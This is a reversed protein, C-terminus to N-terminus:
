KKFQLQLDQLDKQKNPQGQFIEEHISLIQKLIAIKEQKEKLATHYAEYRANSSQELQVLRSEYTKLDEELVFTRAQIIKNSQLFNINSFQANIQNLLSNLEDHNKDPFVTITTNKEQTKEMETKEVKEQLLKDLNACLDYKKVLENILLQGYKKVKANISQFYTDPIFFNGRLIHRRIHSLKEALIKTNLAQPRVYDFTITSYDLRSLFYKLNLYDPILVAREPLINEKIIELSRLIELIEKKIINLIIVKITTEKDVLKYVVCENLNRNEVIKPMLVYLDESPINDIFAFDKEDMAYSKIPNTISRVAQRIVEPTIQITSVPAYFGFTQTYNNNIESKETLETEVKSQIKELLLQDLDACLDYNKVLQQVLGVCLNVLKMVNRNPNISNLSEIVKEKTTAKTKVQSEIYGLITNYYNRIHQIKEALKKSNLAESKVHDLSISSTNCIDLAINALDYNPILALRAPLINAKIIELSKIIELMEMTIIKDVMYIKMQEESIIESKESPNKSFREMEQSASQTMAQNRNAIISPMLALLEQSSILKELEFEKGFMEQNKYNSIIYEIIKAQTAADLASHRQDTGFIFKDISITSKETKSPNETLTEVIQSSSTTANKGLLQDLNACLDFNEVLDKELQLIYDIYNMIRRGNYMTDLQSIVQDKTTKGDTKSSIYSLMSDKYDRIHQLKKALVNKDFAEAELYSFMENFADYIYKIDRLPKAPVFHYQLKNIISILDYNPLKQALVPGIKEKIRYVSNIIELIEKSIIQEMVYAKMSEESIIHSIAYECSIESTKLKEFEETPM